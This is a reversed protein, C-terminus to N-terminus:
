CSRRGEMASSSRAAPHPPRSCTAQGYGRTSSQSGAGHPERKVSIRYSSMRIGVRYCTVRPQTVEFIAEGIRALDAAM